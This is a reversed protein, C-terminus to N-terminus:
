KSRVSEIATPRCRIDLISVQHIFKM